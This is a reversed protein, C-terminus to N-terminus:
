LSGRIEINMFVFKVFEKKEVLEIGIKPFSTTAKTDNLELYSSFANSKSQHFVHCSYARHGAFSNARQVFKEEFIYYYFTFPTHISNICIIDGVKIKDRKM